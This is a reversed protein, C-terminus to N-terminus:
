PVIIGFSWFVEFSPAAGAITWSARWWADTVAGLTAQQWDAGALTMGATHTLRTTPAGFTNDVSSQIIGSFTEGGGGAVLPSTIHLASFIRGGSASGMNLGTGTGSATKTGAAMLQGRVLDYGRNKLDLQASVLQGVEGSLPNYAGRVGVTFFTRDGELEGLHAVSAVEGALFGIRNFLTEDKAVNWFMNATLEFTKLGPIFSRTSGESFVTNDLMEPNAALNLSNSDGSLDLGGVMIKCNAMALGAM